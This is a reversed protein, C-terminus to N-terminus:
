NCGVAGSFRCSLSLFVINLNSQAIRVSLELIMPKIQNSSSFSIKSFVVCSNDHKAISWRCPRGMKPALNFAQLQLHSKVIHCPQKFKLYRKPSYEHRKWHPVNGPIFDKGTEFM